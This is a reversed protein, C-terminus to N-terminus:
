LLVLMCCACFFQCLAATHNRLYTCPRVFLCVSLTMVIRQVRFERLSTISVVTPIGEHRRRAPQQRIRRRAPPSRRRPRLAAAPLRVAVHELARLAVSQRAHACADQVRDPRDHHLLVPDVPGRDPLRRVGGRRLPQVGLRHVHGHGPLDPRRRHAVAAAHRAVLRRCAPAASERGDRRGVAGRGAVWHEDRRYTAV